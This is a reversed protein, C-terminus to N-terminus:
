ETASCRLENTASPALTRARTCSAQAAVRENLRVQILALGDWYEFYDPSQRIVENTQALADQPRGAHLLSMAYLYRCWANQGDAAVSQRYAALAQEPMKLEEYTYGLKCYAYGSAALGVSAQYAQVAATLAGRRLMLDGAAAWGIPTDAPLVQVVQERFRELAPPDDRFADASTDVVQQYLHFDDSLPLAALYLRAAYDPHAGQNADARSLLVSLLGARQWAAAAGEEDGVAEAIAGVRYAALAARPGRGAALTSMAQTATTNDGARFALLASLYSTRDDTPQGLCASQAPQQKLCQVLRINDSLGAGFGDLLVLLLLTGALALPVRFSRM